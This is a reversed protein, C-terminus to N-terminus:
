TRPFSPSTLSLHLSQTHYALTLEFWDPTRTTVFVGRTDGSITIPWDHQEWIKVIAPAWLEPRDPAPPELLYDAELRDLEPADCPAVKEGDHDGRTCLRLQGGLAQLLDAILARIRDRAAYETLEPNWAQARAVELSELPATVPQPSPDARLQFGYSMLGDLTEAFDLPQDLQGEAEWGITGAPLEPSVFYRTGGLGQALLMARDGPIDEAAQWNRITAPLGLDSYTLMDRPRTPGYSLGDLDTFGAHVRALFGRLPDPLADWHPPQDRGFTQPDWGIRFEYPEFPKRLAYLLVWDGRLLCIRVDDLCEALVLDFRPLLEALGDIQWLARTAACRESAQSGAAIRSWGAPVHVAAASGPEVLLAKGSGFEAVVRAFDATDM